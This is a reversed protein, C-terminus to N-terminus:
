RARLAAPSSGYWDSGLWLARWHWGGGSWCLCLVYLGGDSHRYITGWFFIYKGKWEEPILHPNALLYDLVCANLTPKSVLRKRLKNGEIAKGNKQGDALHLIIHSADWVMQGCKQHEEIKCGDPIFPDADCDIVHNKIVVEANGSLLRSVGEMGGLKNVIAEIQGLKLEGYKM